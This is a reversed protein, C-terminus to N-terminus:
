RVARGVGEERETKNVSKITEEKIFQAKIDQTKKYREQTRAILENLPLIDAFSTRM